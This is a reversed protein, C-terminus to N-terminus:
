EFINYFLFTSGYTDYVITQLGERYEKIIGNKLRLVHMYDKCNVKIIENDYSLTLVHKNDKNVDNRYFKNVVM